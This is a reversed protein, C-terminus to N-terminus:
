ALVVVLAPDIHRVCESCADDGPVSPSGCVTCASTCSRCALQGDVRVPEVPQGGCLPCDDFISTRSVRVSAGSVPAVLASRVSNSCSLLASRLKPAPISSETPPLGRGQYQGLLTVREKMPSIHVLLQQKEELRPVAGRLPPLEIQPVLDRDGTCRPWRGTRAGM